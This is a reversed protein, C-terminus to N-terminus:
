EKQFAQIFENLNIINQEFATGVVLLDAGAEIVKKAKDPTNIGGGVILPISISKKVERIVDLPVHHQAGSGAELYIIKQGLMESAQATAVVLDTKNAPIARTNSV